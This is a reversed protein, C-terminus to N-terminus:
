SNSSMIGFAVTLLSDESVQHNAYPLTHCKGISFPNLTSFSFHLSSDSSNGPVHYLKTACGWWGRWDGNEPQPLDQYSARNRQHSKWSVYLGYMCCEDLNTSMQSLKVLLLFPIGKHETSGALDNTREEMKWLRGFYNIFHSHHYIILAWIHDFLM